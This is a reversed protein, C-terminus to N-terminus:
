KVVNPHKLERLISIERIVADAFGGDSSQKLKKIALLDKTERNRAKYVVSYTGAGLQSTLLLSCEWHKVCGYLPAMPLQRRSFGRGTADAHLALVEAEMCGCRSGSSMFPAGVQGPLREYLYKQLSAVLKSLDITAAHQSSFAQQSADWCFDRTFTQRLEENAGLVERLKPCLEKNAFAVDVALAKVAHLQQLLESVPMPAAQRLAHLKASRLWPGIAATDLAPTLACALATPSHELRAPCFSTSPPLQAKAVVSKLLGFTRVATRAPVLPTAVPRQPPWGARAKLSCRARQATAPGEFPHRAPRFALGLWATATSLSPPAYTVAATTLCALVGSLPTLHFAAAQPLKPTAAKPGMSLFAPASIFPRGPAENM